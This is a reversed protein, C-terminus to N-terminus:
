VDLEIRTRSKKATKKKMVLNLPFKETLGISTQRSPGETATPDFDHTVQFYIVNKFIEVKKENIKGLKEEEHLTLAVIKSLSSINKM